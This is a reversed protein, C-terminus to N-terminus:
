MLFGLLYLPVKTKRGLVIGDALVYSNAQEKIQKRTKNKGGVEFVYEDVAFDGQTSYHVTAGGNQLQNMAFSERVKGQVMDDPQSLYTAYILNPNEPYLKAPNRLYAKGAQKKYLNRVLGAQELYRLYTTVSDFDKSLANALKYASFEGPQSHVVYKYLKEIVLLSPTKLSHLSAIDEFITKQAINDIAQFIQLNQSFQKSFPFYGVQLYQKFHKLPQPVNLANAFEAHQELLDPLTIKPLEIELNFELYERFSLGYLRFLSVRRSLDFKSHLIDIMSSGSFLVKFDLYFDSINKLEQQWNPYKHIEDICLLRVDTEKYLREVLDLLKNELFYVHDTSVYLAKLSEQNHQLVTHLLYTTKGIGRSGIIGTAKNELNFNQFSDRLYFPEQQFRELLVKQLEFLQEM